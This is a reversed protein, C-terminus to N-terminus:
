RNLMDAIMAQQKKDSLKFFADHNSKPVFAVRIRGGEEYRDDDATQIGVVFREDDPHTGMKHLTLMNILMEYDSHIFESWLTPLKRKADAIEKKFRHDLKCPYGIAQNWAHYALLLAIQQAEAPADDGRNLIKESMKKLIESMKPATPPTRRKASTKKSTRKM